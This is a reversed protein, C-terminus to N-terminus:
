LAAADGAAHLAPDGTRRRRRPCASGRGRLLCASRSRRRGARHGGGPRRLAPDVGGRGGGRVAPRQGPQAREAVVPRHGRARASGREGPRADRDAAARGDSCGAADDARGRARPGRRRRQLHRDDAPGGAGGPGAALRHALPARQARAPRAGAARAPPHDAARAPARVARGGDPHAPAARPRDRAPGRRLAGRCGGARRPRARAAGPRHRGRRRHGAPARAHLRRQRGPGPRRGRAPAAGAGPHPDGREGARADDGRGSPGRAAAGGGCPRRGRRQEDRRGPRRPPGRGA